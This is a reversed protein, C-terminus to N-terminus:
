GEPVGAKRMGEDIHERGALCRPNDTPLSNRFGSITFTGDLALGAQGASRAEVLRDLHAL